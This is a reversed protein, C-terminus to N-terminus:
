LQPPRHHLKNHTIERNLNSICKSENSPLIIVTNQSRVRLDSSATEKWENFM